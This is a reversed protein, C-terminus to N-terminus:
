REKSALHVSVAPTRQLELADVASQAVQTVNESSVIAHRAQTRAKVNIRRRVSVAASDVGSIGTVAQRVRNKVGARTIAADTADDDSAVKLRMPKRTTLQGLILILGVLALAGSVIQITGNNWQTTDAWHHIRQWNVVVYRAGARYAIVEVIYIVSAVILALALVLALFRNATRM